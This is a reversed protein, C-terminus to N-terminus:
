VHKKLTIKLYPPIIKLYPTNANHMRFKVPPFYMAMTLSRTAMIVPFPLHLKIPHQNQLSLANGQRKAWLNGQRKKMAKDRKDKIGQRKTRLIIKPYAPYNEAFHSYNPPKLGHPPPKRCPPTYNKSM